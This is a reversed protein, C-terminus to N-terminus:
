AKYVKVAPGEEIGGSIPDIARHTEEITCLANFNPGDSVIPNAMTSRAGHSAPVGIALPHVLETVKAAGQAKGYRSEVIITDGDKIGRKKATETNIWIAFEYPDFKKMTENLWVNGYTDGCYFPFGPTKWNFAWLDYEKPASLEETLIWNPTARFGHFFFDMDEEKWGPVTTLGAEKLDAKLKRGVRLPHIHYMSLRTKNDPWYYYNFNEKGITKYKYVPGAADTCGALTKEAGYGTKLIAEGLEDLTPRRSTDLQPAGMMLSMMRLFGMDGTLIGCKDALDMIIDVSNKTNHLKQIKTTDRRGFMAISRTSATSVKHPQVVQLLSFEFSQRELFSDEPLVIDAMVATEDLTLSMTFSFPVKAYMKEFTDRAFNAHIPNGGSSFLIEVEYPIHYTKPDLIAKAMLSPLTHSLPYFSHSDILDPPFKWPKAVAEASPAKVGDDGPSLIMSQPAFNGTAGGPVELSGVLEQIIKGVGDTWPGISPHQWAGREVQVAVPRFPFTFGDIVITSGIKAHSVFENTIRRITAAPVTSISEAWEPTYTKVSDKILQLAPVATVGNVEYTGSLAANMSPMADFPKARKEVEDWMLPKQSAKDVVYEGDPGILYPGNSRNKISWVDLQNIDMEYLMTYLMSTVFTFDTGPKIPVWEHAKSAEPSCRPDVTIIKCGREIADVYVKSGSSAVAINPGQSRGINIVYETRDMDAVSDPIAMHVLSGFFHYACAQGRSPVDNPSGYISMFPLMASFYSAFQGFGSVMVFKRPDDARVKALRTGVTQIAEDWTIEVFKPDENLGKKPNTRKLPAKVRWPNYMQMIAANGRPCLRGANNPARPDGEVQVVIGNVVHNRTVCDGQMCMKCLGPYWGDGKYVDAASVMPVLTSIRGALLYSAAGLAATGASLELFGRRTLGSKPKENPMNEIEM